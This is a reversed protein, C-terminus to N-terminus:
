NSVGTEEAAAEAEAERAAEAEAARKAEIRRWRSVNANHEELTRAFAHGGTGDAVFYLYESEPPNAAAEISERGPNAIPTPPLGDIAYTNWPTQETLEVRTLGRGLSGEGRTIGYIVTPDTQLRMGQRLRNVFVAAVEGREEPVGTEKEIISALILLEDPSEVPLDPDRAEWAAALIEQQRAAMRALVANRDEDKSIDYTAPALTGEPPTETIEGTLDERAKLAQVVQWNTWGEPVTFRRFYNAGENMLRLIDEMSSHAAIEYEGFRLGEDLGSYRAGIRFIMPNRIAGAEELTRAVTALGAGREVEVVVPEELPGAARFQSQGWVLVGLLLILGLILLSLVNAAFHRMM